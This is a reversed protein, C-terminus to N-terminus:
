NTRGLTPFSGGGEPVVDKFTEQMQELTPYNVVISGIRPPIGEIRPSPEQAHEPDVKTGDEQYLQNEGFVQCYVPIEGSDKALKKIAKLTEIDGSKIAEIATARLGPKM